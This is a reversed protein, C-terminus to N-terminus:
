TVHTVYRAQVTLNLEDTDTIEITIQAGRELEPLGSIEITLPIDVLRVLNDRMVSAQCCSVQQQDLWRLCWYREMQRQYDSWAGYQAEFGGIIAFLDDERPQYPAVLPASVGHEALALLQRQNVLDVYRRLPSTCWAYYEVGIAEHPLAHTSMRVRGAQQSRFVGPLHHTALQEAWLRNALIMFEAVIRDLPANRMRPEIRVPTDPDHAAGDLYFNYDVRNNSEPKGRRQDRQASLALTLTWLPRVWQDYPFSKADDALAELTIEHDLENHRLNSTVMLREVRTHHSRIEATDPHVEVYLSLAPVAQGAVLSYHDIVEDPQMPIKEGPTYVTSMRARAIQDLDSNRAIGLAPAAVHIGVRLWGGELAHVSIADDIETTSIDDVSYATVDALPLDDHAPLSAVEAFGTGKPFHMTLFKGRHLSLADPWAGCKLLLAEITLGSQQSAQEVAKYAQTNKDPRTVLSLAVQAIEDPLEGRILESAWHAQQEALARKKEQAALAAQLIEPPAARYKGKGRRHFYIPADHVCWLLTATELATPTHGYYDNALDSVEFEDQPAVEWLFAPDIEAANIPAQRLLEDADPSEFTLICSSRKIKSRKGSSAEVQLSADTESKILGVKFSGSDEYLVFM